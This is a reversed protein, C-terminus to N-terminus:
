IACDVARKRIPVRPLGSASTCACVTRARSAAANPALSSSMSNAIMRVLPSVMWSRGSLSSPPLPRNVLSISSASSAPLTSRATCEVLSMGVKECGPKISAAHRSRSSGRSTNMEFLDLDSCSSGCPAVRPVAESRRWAIALRSRGSRLTVGSRPLTSVLSRLSSSPWTSAVSSASAPRFRSPRVCCAVLIMSTCSNRGATPCPAM